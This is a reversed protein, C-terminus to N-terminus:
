KVHEMVLSAGQVMKWKSGEKGLESTRYSDALQGEHWIRPKDLGEDANSGTSCERKRLDRSWTM